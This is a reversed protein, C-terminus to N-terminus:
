ELTMGLKGFCTTEGRFLWLGHQEVHSWSLMESLKETLRAFYVARELVGKNRGGEGGGKRDGETERKERDCDSMRLNIPPMLLSSYSANSVLTHSVCRSILPSPRREWLKDGTMDVVPLCCIIYLFPWAPCDGLPLFAAHLPVRLAFIRLLRPTMLGLTLQSEQEQGM